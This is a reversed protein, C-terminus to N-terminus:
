RGSTHDGGLFDRLAIQALSTIRPMLAPIEECKAIFLSGETVSVESVRVDRVIFGEANMTGGSVELDPGRYIKFHEFRDAPLHSSTEEHLERVVCQLFTEDGERHGGFFGIKGPAIIGPIDDRQQLLLHGQKDIVIAFAIERHRQAM